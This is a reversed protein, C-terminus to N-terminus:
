LFVADRLTERRAFATWLAAFFYGSYVMENTRCRIPFVARFASHGGNKRSHPYGLLAFGM